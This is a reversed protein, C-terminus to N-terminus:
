NELEPAANLLRVESDSSTKELALEVKGEKVEFCEFGLNTLDLHEIKTSPTECGKEPPYIFTNAGNRIYRSIERYQQGYKINTNPLNENGFCVYNIGSPLAGEFNTRASSSAWISDVKNQFEDYFLAVGTCNKIELFKTIAYFSVGIVAVILIISFIMGFSIDLQGRKNLM